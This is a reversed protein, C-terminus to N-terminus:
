RPQLRRPRLWVYIGLGVLTLSSVLVGLWFYIDRYSLEITNDGAPVLVGLYAHYAKLVPVAQGGIRAVWRRDFNDPIVIVVPQRSSVALTMRDPGHQTLKVTAGQGGEAACPADSGSAVTGAVLAVGAAYAGLVGDRAERPPANPTSIWKCFVHIGGDYGARRFLRIQNEEAVFEWGPLRLGDDGECFMYKVALLDLARPDIRRCPVRGAWDPRLRDIQYDRSLYGLTYSLGEPFYLSFARTARKRAALLLQDDGRVDSFFRLYAAGDEAVIRELEPLKSRNSTYTAKPLGPYEKLFLQSLTGLATLAVLLISLAKIDAREIPKVKIGELLGGVTYGGLLALLVAAIGPLPAKIGASAFISLASLLFFGGLCL